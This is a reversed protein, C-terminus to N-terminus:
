LRTSPFRRADRFPRTLWRGGSVGLIRNAVKGDSYQTRAAPEFRVRTLRLPADYGQRWWRSSRAHFACPHPITSPLALLM